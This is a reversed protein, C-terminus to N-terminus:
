DFAVNNVGSMRSSGVGMTGKEVILMVSKDPNKRTTRKNWSTSARFDGCKWIFSGIQDLTHRIELLYHTLQFIVKVQSM